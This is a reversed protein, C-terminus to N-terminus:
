FLHRTTTPPLPAAADRAQAIYKHEVPEALTRGDGTKLGQFFRVKRLWKENLALAVKGQLGPSLGKCIEQRAQSSLFCTHM